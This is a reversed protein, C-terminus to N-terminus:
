LSKQAPVKWLKPLSQRTSLLVRALVDGYYQRAPYDITGKEELIEIVRQKLESLSVWRREASRFEIWELNQTEQQPELFRPRGIARQTTRYTERESKVRQVITPSCRFIDVIDDNTFNMLTSVEPDFRLERLLRTPKLEEDWPFRRIFDRLKAQLTVPVLRMNVVSDVREQDRRRSIM